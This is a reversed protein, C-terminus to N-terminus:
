TELALYQKIIDAKEQAATFNADFSLVLEFASLANQWDNLAMYMCGLNYAPHTTIFLLDFAEGKYYSGEQGLELCKKFYAAAGLTFGLRNLLVGALYPIPPFNACWELGRQSILRATEYDEKEFSHMGLVYLLSPVLSFDEPKKGEIFNPLLRNFAETYCDVLKEQQQVTSYMQALCYLHMFSLEEEQRMREMIPIDRNLNKQKVHDQYYGHHIIKVGDLYQIQEFSLNQNQYKLQEHLRGAYHIDPLNPFLRLLYSPTKASLDNVDILTLSYLTSESKSQIVELFQKSEVVLEEDADLVLIWNGSALSLSYNRAAAFDDCWAFYEVKAGYQRAIEPTNDESGTDVIIIEDVYPKVSDLCRPLNQSENKVIMCLSLFPKPQLKTSYAM